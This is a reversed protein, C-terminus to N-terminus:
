NHSFCKELFDPISMGDANQRVSSRLHENSCVKQMFNSRRLSEAHDAVETESDTMRFAGEGGHVVDNGRVVLRFRERVGRRVGHDPFEAPVARFVADAEKIKRRAKLADHVHYPRLEPM